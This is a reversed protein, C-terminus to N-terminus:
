ASSPMRSARSHSSNLRTSKRDGYGLNLHDLVKNRQSGFEEVFIADKDAVAEIEKALREWEIPKSDWVRKAGAERGDRLRDTFKKAEEFRPKAIKEIREKTAMSKVADILDRTAEKLNGVLANEIPLADGLHRVDTGAVVTPVKKELVFSEDTNPFREGLNLFLDVNQPYRM